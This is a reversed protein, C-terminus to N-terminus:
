AIEITNANPTFLTQAQVKMETRTLMYIMSIGQKYHTAFLCCTFNSCLNVM